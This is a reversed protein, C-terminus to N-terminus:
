STRNRSPPPRVRLTVMVTESMGPVFFLTAERMSIVTRLCASSLILSDSRNRASTILKRGSAVKTMSPSPFTIAQFRAM